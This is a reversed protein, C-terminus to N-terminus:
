KTMVDALTMNETFYCDREVLSLKGKKASELESLTFYGLESEIGKVFGFFMYDSNGNELKVSEGETVFWTWNTYPSFFKCIINVDKADKDENSYLAPLKKMIEKTLLKM